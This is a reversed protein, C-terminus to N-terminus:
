HLCAEPPSLGFSLTQSKANGGGWGRYPCLQEQGLFQFGVLVEPNGPSHAANSSQESHQSMVWPVCALPSKQQDGVGLPM